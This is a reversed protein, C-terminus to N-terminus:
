GHSTSRKMERLWRLLEKNGREHKKAAEIRREWFSKTPELGFIKELIEVRDALDCMVHAVTAPNGFHIKTKESM